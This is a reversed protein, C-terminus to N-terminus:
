YDVKAKAKKAKEMKKANDSQTNVQGMNKMAAKKAKVKAKRKETYPNNVAAPAKKSAADAASENTDANDVAAKTATAEVKEAKKTDTKTLSQAQAVAGFMFIACAALLLKKM